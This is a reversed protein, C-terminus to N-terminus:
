TPRHMKEAPEVLGLEKGIGGGWSREQARGSPSAAALSRWACCAAVAVLSASPLVLAAAVAVQRFAGLSPDAQSKKEFQVLKHLELGWDAIREGWPLQRGKLPAQAQTHRILGSSLPEGGCPVGVWTRERHFM